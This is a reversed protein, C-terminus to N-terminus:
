ATVEESPEQKIAEQAENINDETSVEPGTEVPPAAPPVIEFNMVRIAQDIWFAGQDFNQTAHQLLLQNLPLSNIFQIYEQYALRARILFDERVQDVTKIPRITVQEESM